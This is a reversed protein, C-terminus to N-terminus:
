VIGVIHLAEEEKEEGHTYLKVTTFYLHMKV